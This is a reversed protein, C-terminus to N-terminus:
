EDKVAIVDKGVYFIMNNWVFDHNHNLTAGVLISNDLLKITFTNKVLDKIIYNGISNRVYEEVDDEWKNNKVLEEVASVVEQIEFDRHGIGVLDKITHIGTQWRDKRVVQGDGRFEYDEVKADLFEPKRFDRETVQRVMKNGKM